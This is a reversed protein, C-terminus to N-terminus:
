PMSIGELIAAGLAGFRGIFWAIGYGSCTDLDAADAITILTDACGFDLSHFSNRRFLPVNPLLEAVEDLFSQSFHHCASWSIQDRAIGAHGLADDLVGQIVEHRRNTQQRIGVSLLRLRAGIAYPDLSIAIAVAGDALPFSDAAFRTDPAVIKQGACLVAGSGLRNRLFGVLQLAQAVEAGGLGQLSFPLLRTTGLEAAIVYTPAPGGVPPSSRCDILVDPSWDQACRRLVCRGATAMLDELRNESNMLSVSSEGQSNVEQIAYVTDACFEDHVLRYLPDITNESTDCSACDAPLATQPAGLWIAGTERGPRGIGLLSKDNDSQPHTM